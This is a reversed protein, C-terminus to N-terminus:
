NNCDSVRSMAIMFKVVFDKLGKMVDGVFTSDTFM